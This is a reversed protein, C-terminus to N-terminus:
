RGGSAIWARAAELAADRGARLDALTLPVSVDPLVGAGEVRRGKPDAHDAIVYMLVDGSPLRQAVAPLAMGASRTGFVRARGLAQMGSTFFESTSASYEDVLIAIPGAFPPYPDGATNVRRPNASFRLTSGRSHLEGLSVVTDLLHGSIGAIMGIVGGPNGRLDIILGSAGRNAFLVSDLKPSAAPFWGNWAIHAIPPKGRAGDLREATVQVAFPPLNGFRTVTGELQGRELQLTRPRGQADVIDVRVEKGRPGALRAAVFSTLLRDTSDNTADRLLRRITDVVFTDVQVIRDGPKVGAAAAVGGPSVHSVVVAGGVPRVDLGASGPPAGGLLDRPSASLPILGFHSQRPVAILARIATRVQERTPADGLAARLSDRASKWAGDILAQDWYSRSVAAWATDFSALPAPTAPAAPAAQARLPLSLSLTPAALALLLARLRPM